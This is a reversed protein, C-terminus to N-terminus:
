VMGLRPATKCDMDFEDDSNVANFAEYFAEEADRYERRLERTSKDKWSTDEETVAPSEDQDADQGTAPACFAVAFGAAVAGFM